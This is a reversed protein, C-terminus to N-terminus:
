EPQWIQMDALGGLSGNRFSNSGNSFKDVMRSYLNVIYGYYSFRLFYAMKINEVKSM